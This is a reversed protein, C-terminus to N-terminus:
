VHKMIMKMKLEVGIIQTVMIIGIEGIKLKLSNLYIRENM